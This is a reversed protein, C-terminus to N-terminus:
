KKVLTLKVSKNLPRLQRRNVEAKALPKFDHHVTVVRELAPKFSFPEPNDEQYKWIPGSLNIAEIPEGFDKLLMVWRWGLVSILDRGGAIVLVLQVDEEKLENFSNPEQRHFNVNRYRITERVMAALYETSVDVPRELTFDLSQFYPAMDLRYEWWYRAEMSTLSAPCPAGRVNFTGHTFDYEDGQRTIIKFFAATRPRQNLKVKPPKM